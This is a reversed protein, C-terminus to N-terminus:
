LSCKASSRESKFQKGNLISMANEMAPRMLYTVTGDGKVKGNGDKYLKILKGDGTDKIVGYRKFTTEIEDVTTNSPVGSFYITTSATKTKKKKSTRKRKNNSSTTKITTTTTTTSEQLEWDNSEESWEFINGDPATFIRKGTNNTTTTSKIKNPNSKASRYIADEPQTTPNNSSATTTATTTATPTDIPLADMPREWTNQNTQSNHYYYKNQDTNWYATWSNTLTIAYTSTSM